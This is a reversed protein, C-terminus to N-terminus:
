EDDGMVERRRREERQAFRFWLGLLVIQVAIWVFAMLAVQEWTTMGFM